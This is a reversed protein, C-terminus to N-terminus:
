CPNNDEASKNIREILENVKAAEFFNPGPLTREHAHRLFAEDEKTYEPDALLFPVSVDLSQKYWVGPKGSEIGSPSEVRVFDDTVTISGNKGYAEISLEPIRYGTVSWCADVHGTLGSKFSMVAHIYDEVERSHVRKKLGMVYSPEGFLWLLIDLVHPALDLLVGGKGKSSRWSAGERLVDSSFSSAKFFMLEGVSGRDLLEKARQFIPSFRKQFGVMHAGRLNRVAECAEQAEHGSLALPKESFLSLDRDARALDAVIGLHTHIPTTIFVADLDENEVMRVHNNYLTVTKPLLAKAARALFAEKECIAKVRADPLSNLIGSHLIGMKGLGVVGVYQM